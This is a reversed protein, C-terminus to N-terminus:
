VLLQIKLSVLTADPPGRWLNAFRAIGITCSNNTKPDVFPSVAKEVQPGAFSANLEAKVSAKFFQATTCHQCDHQDPGCPAPMQSAPIHRDHDSADGAHNVHAPAAHQQHETVPAAEAIMAACISHGSSLLVALVAILASKLVSTIM